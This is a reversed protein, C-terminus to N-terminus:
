RGDGEAVKVLQELTLMCKVWSELPSCSISEYRHGKWLSSEASEVEGEV